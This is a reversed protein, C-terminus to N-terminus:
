RLLSWRLLRAMKHGSGGVVPSVKVDEAVPQSRFVIRVSCVSERTIGGAIADATALAYPMVCKAFMDGQKWINGVSGDDVFRCV